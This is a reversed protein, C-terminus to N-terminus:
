VQKYFLLYNVIYIIINCILFTYVFVYLIIYILVYLIMKLDFINEYIELIFLFFEFHAKSYKKWLYIIFRFYLYLFLFLLAILFFSLFFTILVWVKCLIISHDLTPNGFYRNFIDSKLFDGLNIFYFDKFLIIYKVIIKRGLIFIFTKVYYRVVLLLWLNMKPSLDFYFERDFNSNFLFDFPNNLNDDWFNFLIEKNEILIRM